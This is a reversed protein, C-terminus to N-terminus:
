VDTDASLADTWPKPFTWSGKCRQAVPGHPHFKGVDTLKHLKDCYPCRARPKPRTLADTGPLLSRYRHM